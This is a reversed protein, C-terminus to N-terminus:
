FKMGLSLSLFIGGFNSIPFDKISELGNGGFPIYYYRINAKTITHKTTNFTAGLGIFGGFRLYLDAYGFANFFEREYPTALILTPGVGLQAYPLFSDSIVNRLFIREVGIMLPFMYLRNVKNPVRYERREYDWYEFEDSNRSGSAYLSAFASWDKDFAKGYFVGAGFGSESFLLEMGWTNMLQKVLGIDSILPRPSEFIFVTDPNFKPPEKGKIQSVAENSSLLLFIAIIAINIIKIM